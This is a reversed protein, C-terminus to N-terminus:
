RLAFFREANLYFINDKQEKSLFTLGEVAAIVRQVDGNDTGFMLRDDLGEALFTKMITAFRDSAVIDPNSLVSIDAYVQKNHKMISIAEKYYQDGSHMIWIKLGPLKSLLKELHSPNGLELKFNPSGHNPGAGGTHIGVPLSYKDALAYYPLLLSDSAAIGYYQSLVEGLFNIKREKIQKEVWSIPPWEQGDQYCPQLSYPVKGNPCPFMLGFLFNIKSKGRYSNQLDWSTSIAAKYVGAKELATLQASINKDGHLHVDFVRQPSKSKPFFSLFGFSLLLLLLLIKRM